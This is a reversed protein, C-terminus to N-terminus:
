VDVTLVDSGVRWFLMFEGPSSWGDNGDSLGLKEFRVSVDFNRKEELLTELTM